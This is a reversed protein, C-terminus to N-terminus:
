FDVVLIAAVGDTEVRIDFLLCDTSKEQAQQQSCEWELRGVTQALEFMCSAPRLIAPVETAALQVCKTLIVVIVRRGM